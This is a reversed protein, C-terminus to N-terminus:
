VCWDLYYSQSRNNCLVLESYVPLTLWVKFNLPDSKSHLNPQQFKLPDSHLKLVNVVFHDKLCITEWWLPREDFPDKVLFKMISWVATQCKFCFGKWLSFCIKFSSITNSTKLLQLSLHVLWSCWFKCFVFGELFVSWWVRQCMGGSFTVKVSTQRSKCVPWSDYHPKLPRHKWWQESIGRWVHKTSTGLQLSRGHPVQVPIRRRGSVTPVCFYACHM